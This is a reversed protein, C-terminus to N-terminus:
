NLLEGFGEDDVDDMAGEFSDLVPLPDFAVWAPLASVMSALLTGGRLLWIVYGVSLGSSVVATTGVALTQLQIEKEAQQESAVTAPSSFDLVLETQTLPRNRALSGLVDVVSDSRGFSGGTGGNIDGIRGARSALGEKPEAPIFSALVEKATVEPILPSQGAEAEAAAPETARAEIPGALVQPSSGDNTTPATVTPTATATATAAATAAAATSTEANDSPTPTESSDSGAPSDSVSVSPTPESVSSGVIDAPAVVPAGPNPATVTPTPVPQEVVPQEIVPPEIVPQEIVPPEIVPPETVPQEIVPQEIVPQETVPPETVPEPEGVVEITVTIPDSTLQGDTVSYTFSDTGIFGDDALYSFGGEAFTLTGNITGTILEATLVDSDLDRDNLLLDGPEVILSESQTVVFSEPLVDPADNVAAVNVAIVMQVTEGTQDQAELVLAAVGNGDSAFTLELSSEDLSTSVLAPNNNSVVSFELRDGNTLIDVDAFLSALNLTQQPGDEIATTTISPSTATPADNVAAVDIPVVYDVSAGAQDTARVTVSGTGHQDPLLTVDLMGGSVTAVAVSPASNDVLTFTLSDTNTVTDVDTFLQNLDVREPAGDELATVVEPNTIVPLDNVPTVVVEFSSQSTSIGDDVTLTITVPGGNQNTAPTISITRAAGAETVVIGDLPILTTDSSSASVTLTGAQPNSVSFTLPGTTQDEAVVQNDIISIAPTEITDTLNLTFGVTGDPSAGVTPDDLVVVVDFRDQTEFDLDVGARLRLESGVIEFNGADSGTLTLNNTGLADDLVNITAVTTALTTDSNEPLVSVLANLSIGPAENVDIVNVVVTQIASSQVGDNVQVQLSYSGTTEFDLTGPDAITLEGTVPDLSFVGDPDGGVIAWNGPTGVTDIDTGTLIGLSTGLPSDERISFAPLPDITPAVDNQDNLAFTLTQPATLNGSDTVQFELTLESTTEFDLESVDAVVIEGAANITFATAGTGGTVTFSHTDNIDPDTVAVQAVVTGNPTNEDIASSVVNLTFPENEDIVNITVPVVASINAGDQVSVELQYTNTAEFNLESNDLISIEGTTSNIAFIGDSNGSTISWNQLLGVSDIDSAAVAGVITSNVANESVTFTQGADVIPANDNIDTLDVTITVTSTLGGADAIEVELPFSRTAEFDLQTSDAVTISGSSDIAFATGTNGGVINFNHFDAVDPDTFSVVGVQTGNATNEDITYTANSGVPADNVPLVNLNLVELEDSYAGTGGISTAINVGGTGSILGDTQDWARFTLDGSTGFYNTNPVFRIRANLNLVVANSSSPNVVNQWVAGNDTSFQWIGNTFDAGTVAIGEVANQDVDTIRDGGAAALISAVTDGAPNTDDENIDTLRLTATTDLVPADNVPTVTIQATATLSSFTNINASLAVSDGVSGSAQDWARFILTATGHFDAAPEFRILSDLGLLRTQSPSVSDLELWSTGGDISYEWRGNASDTFLVGIGETPGDVDTILNGGASAIINAVTDGANDTSDEVITTLAIQGSTNLVPQDNVDSVRIQASATQLSFASSGGTGGNAAIDIRAGATHGSTRDWARFGLNANAGNAGDPNLRLLDSDRLLLANSNSVDGVNQWTLGNDISYQWTGGSEGNVVVAIGEGPGVGDTDTIPDGLKALLDSIREGSNGIDDETIEDFHPNAGTALVPADNISVVNVTVTNATPDLNIGGDDTGGSDRVQFTFSDSPSGNVDPAPRYLLNALQAATIEQGDVVAVGNLELAGNTPATTIIVSQFSHSEIDTLGFTSTGIAHAGDENLTITNNTGDPANNVPTIDVITTSIATLDGGSGQNGSDNDDSFTWDIEVSAPPTQSSNSYAISQMVNNIADRDATANFTLVLTGGSNTTVSGVTVGNYVLNGGETLTSLLGSGSFVDEANAGGNRVLTLTTNAFTDEGRDIDIDFIEVDGDLVVASGGEIFTPNGDLLSQPNFDRNPSGDSNFSGIITDPGKRGITIFSGDNLAVIDLVEDTGRSDVDLVGNIGFSTDILGAPTYKVITSNNSNDRVALLISGDESLTIHQGRDDAPDFSTEIYGVGGGGFGSDLTGDANFRSLVTNDPGPFESIRGAVLIKGDPQVIADAPNHDATGPGPHVAVKGDGGFSTDPLGNATFKAVGFQFEPGGDSASGVAFISDDDAVTVNRFFDLNGFDVYAAGAGGAFSGDVSGDTDLRILKMNVLAGGEGNVSTGGIIVQGNSQLDGQITTSAFFGGLTIGSSGGFSTDITGDTNFRVAFAESGSAEGVVIAKGDSQILLDSAQNYSSLSTTTIGDGGGFSSDLSGDANYRAIYLGTNNLGAVLFRGDPLTAGARGSDTGGLDTVLLGDGVDFTPADNVANVTIEVTNTVTTQDTALAAIEKASLARAYVRADDILGNFDFDGTGNGGRGIYTDPNNDYEIPGNGITTGILEGDLYVSLSQSASDVTLAVHRWGTGVLSEDHTFTNSVGGSEYFGELRGASNLYIAPSSGTSIIVSGLSDVGNANIWGTLTISTPEGFLGNVQVFDADGDLALVEGRQADNVITANGNLTGNQAVGAAQDNANGGDFTYHGELDAALATTMTLTVSGNINADPQFTMGDLAANIASKTGQIVFAGTENANEVFTIGTTRSLTLVGNDVSLSVQLPSNTGTLTDNISVETSTGRIFTLTDDENLMQAAPVTQMIELENEVNITFTEVYSNGAADTVAVDVDHSTAAEFDLTNTAAVTIEGTVGNIEFNNSADTLSFTYNSLVENADWEIVYATTTVGGNIDDWEGTSLNLHVHDQVDLFNDPQSASFNTYAGNVASGGAAGLWFTDGQVTGDFWRFAGETGVDSAGLWLHTAQTQFNRALENEYASRITLLQGDIGNLESGVAATQAANFDVRSDVVRYFKQTAADYSLTPDNNLITTIAAPVEIVRINGVVPGLFQPGELTSFNLLTSADKATFTLSLQQWLPDTRSWNSHYDVTFDQSYGDASVRFQQSIQDTTWDGTAEFIVQYQRGAVTTLAQEIGGNAPGVSGNLQVSFNSGEPATLYSGLLDVSNHSVTWGAFTEGAQYDQFGAAGPDPAGDFRGNSVIDDTSDSDTPVVFGVTAGASANESIHLTDMPTSPIFGTGTAHGVSLNNGSVVDVVEGSGNFGDFQWNAILGGPLSNSNFLQQHDLAIETESRTEDWIRVDYITGSFSQNAVFDDLIGDQEQGLVIEGAGTTGGVTAGDALSTGFEVLEGDVHIAYDGNTSEWSVALSHRQGDALQSYDYGTLLGGRNAVRFDLGSGNLFITIDNGSGADAAYSFLSPFTTPNTLRFSTEITFETLGGLIAGGDDAVFYADNGGDTNLEIGSSLDFARMGVTAEAVDGGFHFQITKDTLDPTTSTNEYTVTRLVQEFDAQTGPGVISAIGNSQNFSFALPTGSTDAALVDEGANFDVIEITLSSNTFTDTDSVITDADAIAVPDGGVVFTANYGNPAAGTSDDADLDITANDNVPTINVTTTGTATLAGGPGQAGTNGDSFTWQIDVSAPPVDTFNRYGISQMVENVEANTVGSAFTLTFVGNAISYTGKPVGSLLVETATFSLASGPVFNFNDDTNAGGARQLTLTAGGFDDATSLQSDFITVDIDLAVADSDGETYQAVGDLSSEAGITTGPGGNPDLEILHTQFVTDGTLLLNGDSKIILARGFDSGRSVAVEAIGNTGFSTDIAGASTFKAVASDSATSFGNTGGVYINGTADIALDSALTLISTSVIGDADFSTDLSFTTEDLQVLATQRDFGDRSQAVALTDGTPTLAISQLQDTRGTGIAVRETADTSGDINLRALYLDWDGGGDHTSGGIVVKGDSQVAISVGDSVSDPSHGVIGDGGGFSSDLTGDNQIKFVVIEENGSGGPETGTGIAYITGDALVELDNFQNITSASDYTFTGNGSFTNDYTGDANFRAVLFNNTGSTETTGAVVFRGDAMEKVAYGYSSDGIPAFLVGNGNFSTDLTGDPNHRAIRLQNLSQGVALLKGSALEITEGVEDIALGYNPLLIGDPSSFFTPATNTSLTAGFEYAGADVSADRTYGRQDESPAGASVGTDIADSGPLLALTQTPGGNDALTALAANANLQDTGIWGTGTGDSILNGGGSNLNGTFDSLTSGTIITNQIDITGNNTIGDGSSDAVTVNTLDLTGLNSIGGSGSTSNNGSLTSNTISATGVNWIAGGSSAGSNNDFLSGTISLVGTSDNIIAGGFLGSANGSFTSDVITVDGANHIAGGDNFAATNGTVLVQDLTLDGGSSVRVAAGSQQQGDKLTLNEITVTAGDHVDFLRNSVSTEVVTTTIGDGVITLDDFIDLDGVAADVGESLTFIDLSITGPNVFITDAGATANTAIIAERLSVEGDIGPNAILASVSSTDGDISDSTSDVIIEALTGYWNAQLSESFAVDSEVLGVTYEFQWDGGLSDHGTKDDSGAIDAGTTEGLQQLLERGEHTSALDCGYILIDAGASMSNQWGAIVDQYQDFNDASLWGSGLRVQGGTGHSVVHIADIDMYNTLASTIQAIGNRTSDLTIVEFGRDEGRETRLDALLQDVDPVSSDVFVLERVDEAAVHQVENVLISDAVLDLLDESSIPSTPPEVAPAATESAAASDTTQVDVTPAGNAEAPVPIPTASYLVREELDGLDLPRRSATKTGSEVVKLRDLIDRWSM